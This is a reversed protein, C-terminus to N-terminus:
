IYYLPTDSEASTVWDTGIEVAATGSVIGETLSAGISRRAQRITPEL